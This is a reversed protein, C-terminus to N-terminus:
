GGLGVRLVRRRVLGVWHDARASATSGVGRGTSRSLLLEDCASTAAASQSRLLSHRVAWRPRGSSQLENDKLDYTGTGRVGLRAHRRRPRLTRHIPANPFLPPIVHAQKEDLGPPARPRPTLQEYFTKYPGPQGCTLGTHKGTNPGGYQAMTLLRGAHNRTSLASRIHRAGTCGRRTPLLTPATDHPITHIPNRKTTNPPHAYTSEAGKDHNCNAAPPYAQAIDFAQYNSCPRRKFVGEFPKCYQVPSVSNWTMRADSCLPQM